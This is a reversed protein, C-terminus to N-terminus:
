LTKYTTTPAMNGTNAWGFWGIPITLYLRTRRGQGVVWFGLRRRNGESICLGRISSRRSNHASITFCGAVNYRITGLAIVPIPREDGILSVAVTQRHRTTLCSLSRVRDEGQVPHVVHERAHRLDINGWGCSRNHQDSLEITLCRVCM